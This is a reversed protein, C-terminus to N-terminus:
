TVSSMNEMFGENYAKMSTSMSLKHRYPKPRDFLELVKENVDLFFETRSM